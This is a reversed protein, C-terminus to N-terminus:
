HQHEVISEVVAREGRFVIYRWGDLSASGLVDETADQLTCSFSKHGETAELEAAAPPVDAADALAEFPLNPPAVLGVETGFLEGTKRAVLDLGDVPAGNGITLTM